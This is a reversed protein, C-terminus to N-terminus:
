EYDKIFPFLRHYDTNRISDYMKLVKTREKAVSLFNDPDYTLLEKIDKIQALTSPNQLIAYHSNKLLYDDFMKDLDQKQETELFEVCLYEPLYVLKFMVELQLKQEQKLKDDQRSQIENILGFVKVFNEVGMSQIEKAAKMKDLVALSKMHESENYKTLLSVQELKGKSIREEALSRDSM